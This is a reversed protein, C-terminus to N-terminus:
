TSNRNGNRTRNGSRANVSKPMRSPSVRLGHRFAPPSISTRRNRHQLHPPLTRQVKKRLASSSPKPPHRPRRWRHLKKGAFTESQDAGAEMPAAVAPSTEPAAEVIEEAPSAVTSAELAEEEEKPPAVAPVSKMGDAYTQQMAHLRAEVDTSSQVLDQGDADNQQAGTSVEAPGESLAAVQARAEANQGQMEAVRGETQALTADIGIITGVSQTNVQTARAADQVLQGAGGQVQTITDDINAADSGARNLQGGQERARAAAEPDDPANAENQATMERSESAMPGSRSKNEGAQTVGGPARASVDAAKQQSM